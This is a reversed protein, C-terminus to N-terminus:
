GNTRAAAQKAKAEIFAAKQEATLNSTDYVRVQRAVGNVEMEVWHVKIEFEDNNM